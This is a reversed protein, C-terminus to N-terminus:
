MYMHVFGFKLLDISNPKALSHMDLHAKLSQWDSLYIEHAIIVSSFRDKPNGVM